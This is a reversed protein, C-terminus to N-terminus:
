KNNVSKYQQRVMQMAYPSQRFIIIIKGHPPALDLAMEAPLTSIFELATLRCRMKMFALLRDPLMTIPFMLDSITAIKDPMHTSYM